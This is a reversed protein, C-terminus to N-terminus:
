GNLAEELVRRWIAWPPFIIWFLVTVYWPDRKRAYRALCERLRRANAIEHPTVNDRM